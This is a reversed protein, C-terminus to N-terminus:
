EESAEFVSIEHGDPDTFHFRRGGPFSFIEHSIKGGAGVVTEYVQELDDTQFGPLAHTTSSTQKADADLGVDTDGTLTGAYAPGFDTFQLGLAASYFKKARAIDKTPLELYALRTM